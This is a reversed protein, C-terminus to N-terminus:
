FPTLEPGQDRFEAIFNQIAQTNVGDCTQAHQWATLAVKYPMNPYPAVIIKRADRRAINALANVQEQPLGNYSLIVYGHELSHVEKTIDQADGYVGAALYEPNHTGSTPPVTKYTPTQGPVLHDRGENPYSHIESCNANLAVGSAIQQPILAYVFAGLVILAVAGAIGWYILQRQRAQQERRVRAQEREALKHKSPM